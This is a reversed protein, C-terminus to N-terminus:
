KYLLAFVMGPRFYKGATYKLATSHLLTFLENVDVKNAKAIAGFAKTFAALNRPLKPSIRSDALLAGKKLLEKHMKDAAAASLGFKAVLAEPHLRCSGNFGEPAAFPVRAEDYLNGIMSDALVSAEKELGHFMMATM